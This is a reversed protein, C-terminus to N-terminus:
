PHGYFPIRPKFEYDTYRKENESLMSFIELLLDDNEPCLCLIVVSQDAYESEFDSYDSFELHHLYSYFGKLPIYDNNEISILEIEHNQCFHNM